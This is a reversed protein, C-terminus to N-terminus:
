QTADAEDPTLSRIYSILQFLQDDDLQGEYTPMVNSYGAVIHAGPELISTRLYNEDVLITSGDELSEEAGFIGVLSPGIGTGAPNHCSACSTDAFLQAGQEEPSTAAGGAAGVQGQGGPASATTAGESALWEEYDAESLVVVEGVMRSHNTGCYEACFIHYTGVDTAEFWFTTYRDPLVDHKVRFAPIFFSHIVDQSTMLLKVPTDVPVHLTNIEQQGDPHQIKWMWQKGVVFIEMADDPADWMDMYLVAGWMFAVLALGALPVMIGVELRTHGTIQKPVEDDSRRRYRFAFYLLAGTVLSTFFVLLFSLFFFLLDFEGSLTSASEPFLPIDGM